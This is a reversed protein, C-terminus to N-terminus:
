ANKEWPGEKDRLSELGAQKTGVVGKLPLTKPSPGRCPKCITTSKYGLIGLPEMSMVSNSELSGNGFILFYIVNQSSVFM